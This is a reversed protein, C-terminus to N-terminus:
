HERMQRTDGPGDSKVPASQADRHKICVDKPRRTVPSVQRAICPMARKSEGHVMDEVGNISGQSSRNKVHVLDQDRIRVRWGAEFGLEFLKSAKM